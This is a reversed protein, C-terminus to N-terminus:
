VNLIGARRLFRFLPRSLTARYGDNALLTALYGGANSIVQDLVQKTGLLRPEGLEIVLITDPLYYSRPALGTKALEDIFRVLGRYVVGTDHFALWGDDHIAQRCFRADRLVAEDTHEGDIFCLTPNTGIATADITETSADITVLKTPDADRLSGLLHRMRATSNEAYKWDLGSADPMSPPRADISVIRTCRPDRILVQLSGGLHSGIELYSFRGTREACAQHLSLLSKRDSVTTETAIEDFLTTDLAAIRDALEM